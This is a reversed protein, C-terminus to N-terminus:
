HVTSHDTGVDNGGKVGEEKKCYTKLDCIKDQVLCKNPGDSENVSSFEFDAEADNM